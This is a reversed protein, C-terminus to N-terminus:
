FHTHVRVTQKQLATPIATYKSTHDLLSFVNGHTGGYSKARNALIEFKWFLWDGEVSLTGRQRQQKKVNWKVPKKMLNNSM